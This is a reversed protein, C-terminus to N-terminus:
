ERWSISGFSLSLGLTSLCGVTKLCRFVLWSVCFCVTVKKTFNLKLLITPLFKAFNIFFVGKSDVYVSKYISSIEHPEEMLISLVKESQLAKDPGQHLQIVALMVEPFSATGDPSIMKWAASKCKYTNLIHIQTKRENMKNNIIRRKLLYFFIGSLFHVLITLIFPFGIIFDLQNYSWIVICRHMVYHLNFAFPFLIFHQKSESGADAHLNESPQQHQQQCVDQSAPLISVERWIIIRYRCCGPSFFYYVNFVISIIFAVIM